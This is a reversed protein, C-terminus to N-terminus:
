LSALGGLSITEYQLLFGSFGSPHLQELWQELIGGQLTLLELRRCKWVIEGFISSEQMKSPEALLVRWLVKLPVLFIRHKMINPSSVADYCFYMYVKKEQSPFYWVLRTSEALTAGHSWLFMSARQESSWLPEEHKTKSGKGRKRAWSSLLLRKSLYGLEQYLAEEGNCARILYLDDMVSASGPASPEAQPSSECLCQCLNPWWPM